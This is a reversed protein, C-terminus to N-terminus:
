APRISLGRVTNADERCNINLYNIYIADSCVNFYYEDHTYISLKLTQVASTFFANLSWFSSTKKQTVKCSSKQIYIWEINLKEEIFQTLWITVIYTLGQIFYILNCNFGSWMTELLFIKWYLHIGEDKISILYIRIM